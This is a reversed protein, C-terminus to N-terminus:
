TWHIRLGEFIQLLYLSEKSWFNGNVVGYEVENNQIQSGWKYILEYFLELLYHNEQLAEMFEVVDPLSFLNTEKEKLQNKVMHSM